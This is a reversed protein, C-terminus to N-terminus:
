TAIVAGNREDTMGLLYEPSCEYLNCLAMLNNSMPEAKGMEWRGIANPHVSIATAVEQISLGRELREKRMNSLM